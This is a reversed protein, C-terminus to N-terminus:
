FTARHPQIAVGGHRPTEVEVMPEVLPDRRFAPAAQRMRVRHRDPAAVRPGHSGAGDDAQQRDFARLHAVEVQPVEVIRALPEPRRPRPLDLARVHGREVAQPRAQRVQSRHRRDGVVSQRRSRRRVAPPAVVQEPRSAVRIEVLQEVVAVVVHGTVVVQRSGNSGIM